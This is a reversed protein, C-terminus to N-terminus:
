GSQPEGNEETIPLLSVTPASAPDKQAWWRADSAIYPAAQMRTTSSSLLLIDATLVDTLVDAVSTRTNTCRLPRTDSVGAELLRKVRDNLIAAGERATDHDLGDGVLELLSTRACDFRVLASEVATESIEASQTSDPLGSMQDAGSMQDTDAPIVASTAGEPLNELATTLDVAFGDALIQASVIRGALLSALAERQAATLGEVQALEGLQEQASRLMFAALPGVTYPAQGVQPPLEVFSTVDERDAFDGWPEWVGGSARLRAEATESTSTLLTACDTCETALAALQTAREATAAESRAVIDRMTQAPSLAMLEVAEPTGAISDFAYSAGACGSAGLAVCSSALVIAGKKTWTLTHPLALFRHM